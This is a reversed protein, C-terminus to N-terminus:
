ERIDAKRDGHDNLYIVTAHACLWNSFRLAGAETDVIVPHRKAFTLPRIPPAEYRLPETLAHRTIGPNM